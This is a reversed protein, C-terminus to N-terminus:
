PRRGKPPGGEAIYGDIDEAIRRDGMTHLAEFYKTIYGFVGHTEFLKAVEEGSLGKLLRYREMCYVLFAAERSM